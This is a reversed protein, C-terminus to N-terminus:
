PKRTTIQAPQVSYNMFTSTTQKFQNSNPESNLVIDDVYEVKRSLFKGIETMTPLTYKEAETEETKNYNNFGQRKDSTGNSNTKNLAFRIFISYESRLPNGNQIAPKWNPMNLIVRTAEDDIGFGLGKIIKPKRIEGYENVIFSILVTGSINAKSAESPYRINQALFKIMEPNGGPFEAKEEVVSFEKIRNTPNQQSEERDTHITPTYGAVEVGDIVNQESILKVTYDLFKSRGIRIEYSQYNVHSVVIQSFAPVDKLEFKGNEDTLTGRTSGKLIVTANPVFNGNENKVTGRVIVKEEQSEHNLQVNSKQVSHNAASGFPEGLDLTEKISRVIKIEAPMIAHKRAATLATMIGIVPIIIFYKSLLWKSTRNKYIMRIRTKLLSSKFFHNTLSKVPSNLAYSVLFTTYHERNPAEEDALYEHVEQLSHKYFWLVPNFWFVIKLSEILLIDLSHRQKIHISEHRLITDLHNEYDNCSVVLWKLFSFSGIGSGAPQYDPLLILNYDEFKISEGQKIISFIKYFGRLLQYLMFCVGFGYMIRVIFIWEVPQDPIISTATLIPSVIIPVQTISASYVTKPIVIEVPGPFKVIPLIFAILLSGSLYFRNWQFFTHNRFLLWYCAYFLLWYLNVKGLYILLEM